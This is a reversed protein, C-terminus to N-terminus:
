RPKLWGVYYGQFRLRIYYVCAYFARRLAAKDRLDFDNKEVFNDDCCGLLQHVSTIRNRKKSNNNSNNDTLLEAPDLIGSHLILYQFTPFPDRGVKCIPLCARFSFSLSHTHSTTLYPFLSQTLSSFQTNTHTHSLSLSISLFLVFKLYLILTLYLLEIFYSYLVFKLTFIWLRIQVILAALGNRVWTQNNNLDTPPALFCLRIQVRATRTDM